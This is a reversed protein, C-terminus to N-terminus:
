RRWCSSPHVAHFHKARLRELHYPYLCISMASSSVKVFKVSSLKFGLKGEEQERKKRLQRFLEQDSNVVVGPVNM